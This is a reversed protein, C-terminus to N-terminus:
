QGILEKQTYGSIKCFKDNVYFIQGYIDAISVMAHADLASSLDSNLRVQEEAQAQIRGIKILLPRLSLLWLLLTSLMTMLVTDFVTDQWDTLVIGWQNLSDSLRMVLLSSVGIVASIIFLSSIFNRKLYESQSLAKAM